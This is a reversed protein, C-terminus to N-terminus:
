DPRPDSARVISIADDYGSRPSSHGATEKNVLLWDLLDKPDIKEEKILTAVLAQLVFTAAGAMKTTEMLAAETAALRKELSDM